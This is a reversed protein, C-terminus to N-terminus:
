AGNHSLLRAATKYCVLALLFTRKVVTCARSSMSLESQDEDSLCDSAIIPSPHEISQLQNIKHQSLQM